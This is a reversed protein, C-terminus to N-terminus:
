SVFPLTKFLYVWSSVILFLNLCSLIASMTITGNPFVVCHKSNTFKAFKKEFAETVKHETIWNDKKIYEILKKKAKIGILPRIQHIM